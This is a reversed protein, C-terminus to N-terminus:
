VINILPIPVKTEPNTNRKLGSMMPPIMNRSKETALMNTVSLIFGSKCPIATM